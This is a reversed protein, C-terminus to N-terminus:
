FSLLGRFTMTRNGTPNGLTGFSTSYTNANPMGWYPHNMVNQADAYLQFKMRETISFTKTLAMNWNFNNKGPIYLLQGIAGPTTNWVIYNQNARGDASILGLPVGLRTWDNANTGRNVRPDSGGVGNVKQMDQGRFMASIQDLTVGPALSVGTPAFTNFTNFNGGLRVPQGTNFSFVSSTTWGGVLHDLWTRSVNLLKGKGVPLDYTVFTSITHRMDFPSPRRDLSKNRLTAWNQNLMPDDAGTNSLGHSWTYNLIWTLGHSYAKRLQVQLANYSWWGADDVYNMTTTYPNLRFFNIPYGAGAANYSLGTPAIGPRLCPSFSNGMMRCFYNQGTLTSAFSGAAGNQLYGAFTASNYGSSAAIAGVTGRPGFASDLIPPAVQGPLGQNSFNNTKLIPAPQASIQAVTMGNAIALNSQARQFESLFGNELINTENLDYTRWQRHSQNGVYRVELAFNRALERQIGLNWQIVYPASLNPKMGAFSSSFTQLNQHLVPQYPTIATFASGTLPTAAVDALTIWQPLATSTGGQLTQSMSKGANCGIGLGPGCGYYGSSMLTGEDYYTLGYSGRLVTKAGGMLRGLFGETKNPNWAFGVNPAFNNWDPKYPHRGITAVPDNNGSLNGPTFLATSPGYIDKMDPVGSIGMVDYQDGQAEWRLGFNLTLHPNLRWSDQAWLGGMYSRFWNYFIPGGYQKTAPDVVTNYYASAIRGVLQNYLAAPGGPLDGPADGPVTQATFINGPIPDSLPTGLTFTPFNYNESVDKWDTRRFTFGGRITHQGQLHTLTDYMTTIFHRGTTNPRDDVYPVLTGFPLLNAGANSGAIRLPQNNYMNYAQYDATAQTNTDGSHQTGYRFENLTTSSFTSQLAGSWVFYGLRFPYM